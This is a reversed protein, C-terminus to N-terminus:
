GPRGITKTPSSHLHPLRTPLIGGGCSGLGLTHQVRPSLPRTRVRLISTVNFLCFLAARFDLFPLYFTCFTSRTFPTCYCITGICISPFFRRIDTINNYKEEKERRGREVARREKGDAPSFSACRPATIFQSPKPAAICGFTRYHRKILASSTYGTLM